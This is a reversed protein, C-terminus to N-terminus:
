YGTVPRTEAPKVKEIKHQKTKDRKSPPATKVLSDLKCSQGRVIISSFRDLRDPGGTEFGITEAYPLDICPSMFTGRYWKGGTDQVYIADRGDARWNRISGTSIFPISEEAPKSAIEAQVGNIAAVSALAALLLAKM